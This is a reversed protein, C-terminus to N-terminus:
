KNALGELKQVRIKADKLEPSSFDAEKWIRLFKKYEKIAKEKDGQQEYAAGLWYRALVQPVPWFQGTGPFDRLIYFDNSRPYYLLHNFEQVAESVQGTKLM